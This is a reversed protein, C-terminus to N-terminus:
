ERRARQYSLAFCPPHLEPKAFTEWQGKRSGIKTARLFGDVKARHGGSERKARRERRGGEKPLASAHLEKETGGTAQNEPVRHRDGAAM